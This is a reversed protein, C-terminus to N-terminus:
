LAAVASALVGTDYIIRHGDGLVRRTGPDLPVVAWSASAFNLEVHLGSPLRMRRERVPGWSMSRILQANPRLKLFWSVDTLEDPDDTFIMIDVDSAMREAKRAYSGVVAVAVVEDRKIAWDAIDEIVTHAVRRRGKLRSTM